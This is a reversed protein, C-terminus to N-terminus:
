PLFLSNRCVRYHGGVTKVGHAKGQALWRYISEATVQVVSAAQRATLLESSLQCVPCPM